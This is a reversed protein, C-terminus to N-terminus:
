KERDVVVVRYSSPWPRLGAVKRTKRIKVFITTTAPATPIHSDRLSKWPATPLTSFRTKTKWAKWPVTMEVARRKGHSM